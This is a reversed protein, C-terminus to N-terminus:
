PSAASVLEVLTNPAIRYGEDTRELVDGLGAGRLRRVSTRVRDFAAHTPPSSWATSALDTWHLAARGEAGALALAALMRRLAVGSLHVRTAGDREFWAGDSAVRLSHRDTARKALLRRALPLVLRVESQAATEDLEALQRRLRDESGRKALVCDCMAARLEVSARTSPVAARASAARATRLSAAASARDGAQASLFARSAALLSRTAWGKPEAIALGRTYAASAAARNNAHEHAM